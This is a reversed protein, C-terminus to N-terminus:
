VVSTRIWVRSGFSEVLSAVVVAAARAAMWDVVTEPMSGDGIRTCRNSHDVSLRPQYSDRSQPKTNALSITTALPVAPTHFLVDM